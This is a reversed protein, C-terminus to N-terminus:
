AGSRAAELTNKILMTITMPGVGGPVPTIYSAVEKASDFDVDGALKGDPLRNMGVDIVVAGPKLMDGTILHAKGVAAIVIDASKIEAALDETRSHCITVTAHYQLLLLAMPKGVINSRGIVVAKKGKIDMGTSKILEICGRPTCPIFTKAGILLNGVNIPHFGDVDKQPSIADLVAKEHIHKPLPLQVLIGHIDARGNLEKILKLLDEQSTMSDMRHIESYMGVTQCAKHKNSVYIQSAPDEGVVIVVLGPTIGREKLKEVDVAIEARMDAAIKKGDIIGASM